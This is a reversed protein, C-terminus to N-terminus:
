IVKGKLLKRPPFCLEFNIPNVVGKWIGPVVGIFRFLLFFVNFYIFLCSFTAFCLIVKGSTPPLICENISVNLREIIVTTM